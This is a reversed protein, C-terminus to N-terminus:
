PQYCGFLLKGTALDVLCSAIDIVLFNNSFNKILFENFKDFTKLDNPCHRRNALPALTTIVTQIRRRNCTKILETYDQCMDALDQGHLIDVSGLNVIIKM